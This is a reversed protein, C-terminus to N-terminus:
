CPVRSGDEAHSQAGNTQRSIFSTVSPRILDLVRVEDSRVHYRQVLETYPIHTDLTLVEIGLVVNMSDLDVLVGPAVECTRQVEGDHLRLYAANADSDIMLKAM